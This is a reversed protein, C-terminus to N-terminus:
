GIEQFPAPLQLRPWHDRLCDLSLGRLHELADSSVKGRPLAHCQAAYPVVDFRHGDHEM